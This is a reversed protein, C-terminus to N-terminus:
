VFRIMRGALQFIPALLVAVLCGGDLPLARAQPLPTSVCPGKRATKGSKPDGAKKGPKAIVGRAAGKMLADLPGHPTM